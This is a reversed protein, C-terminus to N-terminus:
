KRKTIINPRIQQKCMKTKFIMQSSRYHQFMKKKAAGNLLTWECSNTKCDLFYMGAEQVFVSFSYTQQKLHLQWCRCHPLFQFMNKVSVTSLSHAHRFCSLNAFHSMVTANCFDRRDIEDVFSWRCVTNCIWLNGCVRLSKQAQTVDTGVFYLGSSCSLSFALWYNTNGASFNYVVFQALKWFLNTWNVSSIM